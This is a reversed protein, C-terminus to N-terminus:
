PNYCYFTDAITSPGPILAGDTCATCGDTAGFCADYVYTGGPECLEGCLPNAPTPPFQDTCVNGAGTDWCFTCSPPCTTDTQAESPTCASGCSKAPGEVNYCGTTATTRPTVITPFIIDYTNCFPNNGDKRSTGNVTMSASNLRLSLTTSPAGTINSFSYTSFKDAPLTVPQLTRDAAGIQSGCAGDSYLTATLGDITISQKMPTSVAVGVSNSADGNWTFYVDLSTAVSNPIGEGRFSRKVMGTSGSTIWFLQNWQFPADPCDGQNAYVQGEKNSVLAGGRDIGHLFRTTGTSDSYYLFEDTTAAAVWIRGATQGTFISPSPLAGQARYQASGSEWMLYSGSVYIRSLAM